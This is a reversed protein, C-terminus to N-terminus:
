ADLFEGTLREATDIFPIIDNINNNIKCKFPLMRYYQSAEFFKVLMLESKNLDSHLYEQMFSNFKKIGDPVIFNPGYDVILEYYSNCSQLIHSYDNLKNDIINEEYVDIFLIDDSDQLYLTNELTPNGHTFSEFPNNYLSIVKKKMSSLKGYIDKDLLVKNFNANNSSAEMMKNIIEEQFYLEIPNSFSEIKFSYLKNLKEIVKVFINKIEEDTREKSLYEYLNIGDKYYKLDMYAYEDHDSISDSNVYGFDLIEVFTNPFIVGLRQMKKLQSYWRCFGYEREKGLSIKKRVFTNNNDQIVSTSALSGGKLITEKM